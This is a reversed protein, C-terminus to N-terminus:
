CSFLNLDNCNQIQSDIGAIKAKFDAISAQVEDTIVDNEVLAKMEALKEKRQEKLLLLKKM